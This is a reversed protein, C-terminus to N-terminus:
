SCLCKLDSKFELQWSFHSEVQEIDLSSHLISVLIIVIFIKFHSTKAIVFRGYSHTYDSHSINKISATREKGWISSFAQGCHHCDNRSTTLRIKM